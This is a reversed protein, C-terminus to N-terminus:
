DASVITKDSPDIIHKPLCELIVDVVNHILNLKPEGKATVLSIERARVPGAIEKILDLSSEEVSLTALEPLFTLGGKHEVIRRLADISNSRYDLNSKYSRCNDLECMNNIQDSFCNGENLLWLDNGSIADLPISKKSYLPHNSSLYLFFKEYFMKRVNLRLATEIPTSLIGADISRNRVGDIIEHTKLESITLKIHPYQDKLDNIFLPVLYPSLTPIVGISLEGREGNDLTTSFDQLQKAELLLGQAQDMFKTGDPTLTLPKTKRDFIMFGISQELKHVQQSIASQTLGEERAAKSFSGAKRLVHAYHLQQLNIM